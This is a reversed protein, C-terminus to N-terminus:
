DEKKRWTKEKNTNEGKYAKKLKVPKQMFHKRHQSKLQSKM